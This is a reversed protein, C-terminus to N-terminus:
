WFLITENILVFKHNTLSRYTNVGGMNQGHIKVYRDELFGPPVKKPKALIDIRNGESGLLLFLYLKM